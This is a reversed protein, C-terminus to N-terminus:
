PATLAGTSTNSGKASIAGLVSNKVAAAVADLGTANVTVSTSINRKDTGIDSYTRNDNSTESVARDQAIKQVQREPSMEAQKLFLSQLANILGDFMGAPPEVKAPAASPASAALPPRRDEVNDSQRYGETLPRRPPTAPAPAAKGPEGPKGPEGAVGPNRRDFEILADRAASSTKADRELQRRQLRKREAAFDEPENPMAKQTREFPTSGDNKPTDKNAPDEGFIMTSLSGAASKLEAFKAILTDVAKEISQFYAALPSEGGAKWTQFENIAALLATIAGAIAITPGVSFAILAGLLLGLGKAITALAGGTREDVASLASMLTKFAGAIVSFVVVGGGAVSKFFQGLGAAFTRLKAQIEELPLALLYEGFRRFDQSFEAMLGSGFADKMGTLLTQFRNMATTIDEANLVDGFSPKGGLKTAEKVIKQWMEFANTAGLLQSILQDPAGELAETLFARRKEQDKMKAAAKLVDDIVVSYAKAQGKAGKIKVGAKALTEAWDGGDKVGERLKETFSQVFKRGDDVSAGVRRMVNEILSLEKLPVGNVRASDTSAQRAKAFGAALKALAVAAAGAAATILGARAVFGAGFRLLGMTVRALIVAVRGLRKTIAAAFMGIARALRQFMQAARQLKELGEVTFGLRAVLEEIVM